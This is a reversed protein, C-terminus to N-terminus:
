SRASASGPLAGIQRMLGLQDYETWEEVLKGERIRVVMIGTYTVPSNTPNAGFLPGRHTGQGRYRMVVQDGDALLDEITIRYDPFAARLAGARRRWVEPGKAGAALGGAVHCVFDDAVLSELGAEDGKNLAEVFRRVIAIGEVSM